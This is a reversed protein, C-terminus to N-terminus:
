CLQDEGVKGHNPPMYCQVFHVLISIVMNLNLNIYLTEKKKANKGDYMVTGGGSEPNGLHLVVTFVDDHDKHLNITQSSENDDM